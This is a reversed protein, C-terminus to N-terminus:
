DSPSLIVDVPKLPGYVLIDASSMYSASVSRSAITQTLTTALPSGFDTSESLPFRYHLISHDSESVIYVSRSDTSICAHRPGHMTIRNTQLGRGTVYPSNGHAPVPSGLLPETSSANNQGHVM